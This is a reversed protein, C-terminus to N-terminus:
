RLLSALVLAQPGRALLSKRVRRRARQLAAATPMGLIKAIDRSFEVGRRELEQAHLMRGCRAILGPSPLGLAALRNHLTRRTTGFLIARAAWDDTWFANRVCHMILSRESSDRYWRWLLKLETEPAPAALRQRLSWGGGELAARTDLTLIDDVGSLTWLPMLRPLDARGRALVYIGVHPSLARLREISELSPQGARTRDGFVVATASQLVSGAGSKLLRGVDVTVPSAHGVIGALRRDFLDAGGIDIILEPWTSRRRPEAARTPSVVQAPGEGADIEAPPNETIVVTPPETM